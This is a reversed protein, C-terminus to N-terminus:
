NVLCCNESIMLRMALLCHLHNVNLPLPLITPVLFYVLLRKFVFLIDTDGIAYDSLSQEDELQKSAFVLRQEALSIGIKDRLMVKM